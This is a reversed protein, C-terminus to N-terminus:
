VSVADPAGTELPPPPTAVEVGVVGTEPPEVAQYKPEEPEEAERGLALVVKEPLVVRGSVVVGGVGPM